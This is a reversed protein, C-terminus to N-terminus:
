LEFEKLKRRTEKFHSKFVTRLGYRWEPQMFDAADVRGESFCVDTGPNCRVVEGDRTDGADNKGRTVSTDEETSVNDGDSSDEEAANDTYIYEM